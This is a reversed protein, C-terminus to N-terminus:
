YVAYFIWKIIALAAWAAMITINIYGTATSTLLKPVLKEDKAYNTELNMIETETLYRWYGTNTRTNWNDLLYLYIDKRIKLQCEIERMRRRCTKQLFIMRAVMRGFLWLMVIVFPLIITTTIANVLGNDEFAVIFLGVLAAAWIIGAAQWDRSAASDVYNECSDYEQLLSQESPGNLNGQIYNNASDNM